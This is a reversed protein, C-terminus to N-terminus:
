LGKPDLRPAKSRVGHISFRLVPIAFAGAGGMGEWDCDYGLPIRLIRALVLSVCLLSM